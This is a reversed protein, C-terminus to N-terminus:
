VFPDHKWHDAFRSRHRRPQEGIGCDPRLRTVVFKIASWADHDRGYFSPEDCFRQALSNGYLNAQAHAGLVEVALDAAIDDGLATRERGDDHSGMVIRKEGRSPSM